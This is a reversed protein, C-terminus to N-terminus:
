FRADDVIFRTQLVSDKFSVEYDDVTNMLEILKPYGIKKAGNSIVTLTYCKYESVAPPGIVKANM